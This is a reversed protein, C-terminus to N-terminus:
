MTSGCALEVDTDPVIFVNCVTCSSSTRVMIFFGNTACFHAVLIAVVARETLMEGFSPVDDVCPSASEPDFSAITEDEPALRYESTRLKRRSGIAAQGAVVTSARPAVDVERVSCLFLLVWVLGTTGFVYFPVSWKQQAVSMLPPSLALGLVSGAFMGSYICSLSRSVLREPISAQIIANMAPMACGEGCGLLFRALGMFFLGSRVAIPTLLTMVSWVAVGVAMVKRGGSKDATRGAIIGTTLYGGFLAAMVVGQASKSWGLEKAIPLILVSLCARDIACITLALFMHAVITVQM